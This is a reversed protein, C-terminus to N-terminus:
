VVSEHLFTAVSHAAPRSYCPIFCQLLPSPLESDESLIHFSLFPLLLKGQARFLGKTGVVHIISQLCALWALSLAAECVHGCWLLQLGHCSWLQNLWWNHIPFKRLMFLNAPEGSYVSVESYFLRNNLPLVRATQTLSMNETQTCLAQTHGHVCM